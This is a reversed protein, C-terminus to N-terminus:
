IFWNVWSQFFSVQACRMQIATATTATMPPKSESFWQFWSRSKLGSNEPTAASSAPVTSALNRSSFTGYRSASLPEVM